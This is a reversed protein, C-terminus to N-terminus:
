PLDNITPPNTQPHVLTQLIYSGHKCMCIGAGTGPLNYSSDGLRPSLFLLLFALSQVKFNVVRFSSYNHTNGGRVQSINQIGYISIFYNM